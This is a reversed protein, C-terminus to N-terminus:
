WIRIFIWATAVVVGAALCLAIQFRTVQASIRTMADIAAHRDQETTAIRSAADAARYAERRRWAVSHIDCDDMYMQYLLAPSEFELKAQAARGAQAASGATPPALNSPRSVLDRLRALQRFIAM